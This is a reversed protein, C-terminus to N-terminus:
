MFNRPNRIEDKRFDRFHSQRFYFQNYLVLIRNANRQLKYNELPNKKLEEIISLDMKLPNWRIPGFVPRTSERLYKLWSVVYMRIDVRVNSLINHRPEFM